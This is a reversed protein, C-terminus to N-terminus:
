EPTRRLHPDPTRTVGGEPPLTLHLDRASAREIRFGHVVGPAVHAYVGPRAPRCPLREPNISPEGKLVYLSEVDNSHRHLPMMEGYRATEDITAFGRPQQRRPPSSFPHADKGAMAVGSGRARPFLCRSVAGRRDCEVHLDSGLPDKPPHLRIAMSRAKVPGAHHRALLQLADSFRREAKPRAAPAAQTLCTPPSGEKRLGVEANRLNHM